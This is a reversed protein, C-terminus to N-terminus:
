RVAGISKAGKRIGKYLDMIVPRSGIPGLAAEVVSPLSPNAESLRSTAESPVGQAIKEPAEFKHQMFAVAWLAVVFVDTEKSVRRAEVSYPDYTNRSKRVVTLRNECGDDLFAEDVDILYVHDDLHTDSKQLALVNTYSLDGHVMNVSHMLAVTEALSALLRWQWEASAEGVPSRPKHVFQAEFRVQTSLGVM